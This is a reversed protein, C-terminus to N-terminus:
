HIEDATVCPRERTEAGYGDGEMSGKLSLLAQVDSAWPGSGIDSLGGKSRKLHLDGRSRVEGDAPLLPSGSM